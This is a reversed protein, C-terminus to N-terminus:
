SPRLQDHINRLEKVSLVCHQEDIQDVRTVPFHLDHQLHASDCEEVCLLISCYWFHNAAVTSISPLPFTSDFISIFYITGHSADCFLFTGGMDERGESLLAVRMGRTELNHKVKCLLDYLPLLPRFLPPPSPSLLPLRHRQAAM